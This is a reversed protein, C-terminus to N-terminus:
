DGLCYIEGIDLPILKIDSRAAMEETLKRLDVEFRHIPIVAEPNITIAAAMAEHIDMTFKGGVPLLAVDVRGLERMEPIFDTDGAHYIKRGGITILYGVGEGKQHQKRTSSGQETNYAQVAEIVVADLNLREGPRIMKINDGLDKSCRGPAVVLTDARRLRDVTVRKCHDKHHHTVLILDAKELEEPLGDIPGPWSSFEIRKPYDKFYTKLYAPDIFILLNRASIQIWAPPFWKISIPMKKPKM